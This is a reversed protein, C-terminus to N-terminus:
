SPEGVHITVTGFALPYYRVNKLGAQRMIEALGEPQPFPTLSNPLYTYASRSRAIAGGIAPVLTYFYFRFLERFVPLTPKSIELHVVRGGPVVVRGMESFLQRLDTVNRGAFGVTAAKFTNDEFPLGMADAWQFRVVNNPDKRAAKARALDLMGESFDTAIVSGEPGVRSALAFAFDGTGTAVDLASDGPRLRSLYVAHRRWLGHLGLSMVSNLLDYVPAISTFMEQVYRAKQDPPPLIKEAQRRLKESNM